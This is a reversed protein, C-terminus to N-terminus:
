KDRRIIHYGFATKIVPSIEGIQLAFTGEEFKKAMAGRGFEGLSGKASKGSPCDSNEEALRGFDEGARVKALLEDALKKAEEESRTASSREAGKYALLIHSASVKDSAHIQVAASANEPAPLPKAESLDAAKVMVPKIRAENVAFLMKGANAALEDALAKLAVDSGSYQATLWVLNSRAIGPLEVTGSSIKLQLQLGSFTDVTLAIHEALDPHLEPSDTAIFDEFMLGSFFNAAAAANNAATQRDDPLENLVLSDTASARELSIKEAAASGSWSIKRIQGNEVKLLEKSMWNKANKEIWFFTNLLYTADASNIRCYQGDNGWGQAGDIMRAQRGKGLLMNKLDVGQANKLVLSTTEPISPLADTTLSAVGLDAHRQPNSSVMEVIKGSNLRQFLDEVKNRDARLAHLDPLRWFEGQRQLKIVGQDSKIHVESIQDIESAAVLNTGALPDVVVSPKNGHQVLLAVGILLAAILLLKANKM